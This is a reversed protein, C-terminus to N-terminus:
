AAAPAEPTAGYMIPSSSLPRMPLWLLPAYPGEALVEARFM